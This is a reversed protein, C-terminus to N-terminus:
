ISVIAGIFAVYLKRSYKCEFLKYANCCFGSDVTLM